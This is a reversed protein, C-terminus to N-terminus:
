LRCICIYFDNDINDSIIASDWDQGLIEVNKFISSLTNKLVTYDWQSRHLKNYKGNIDRPTSLIFVGNSLLHNKVIELTKLGEIYTIHEISEFMTILNFLSDPSYESMDCTIYKNLPYNKKAFQIAKRDIDIGIMKYGAKRLIETGYGSGCALDLGTDGKNVRRIVSAYGYRTQHHAITQPKLNKDNLYVREVVKM